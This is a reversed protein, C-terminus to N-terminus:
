RASGSERSTSGGSAQLAPHDDLAALFARAWVRHGRDNPHFWDAAFDTAMARWGREHQAHQLGAVRLGHRRAAAAVLASAEESADAWVGHMFWPADAVVSAEPLGAALAEVDDAMGVASGDRVDNGGVGVLVLDPDLEALRPLQDRVVDGTRAGSRSLNHVMVPGGTRDELAAAVRGVWGREPRSAGVGQAASDGLVAVVLGGPEGRPVAWYAAREDVSRALAVLKSAWVAVVVGTLALAATARPHRRAWGATVGETHEPASRV